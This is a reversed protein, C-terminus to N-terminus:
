ASRATWLRRMTESVGLCKCRVTGQVRRRPQSTRAVEPLQRRHSACVPTDSNRVPWGRNGRPAPAYDREHRDHETGLDDLPHDRVAVDDSNIGFAEMARIHEELLVEDIFIGASEELNREPRGSTHRKCGCCTKRLFWYSSRKTTSQLLGCTSRQDPRRTRPRPRECLLLYM